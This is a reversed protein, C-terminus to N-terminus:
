EATKVLALIDDKTKADGLEINKATAYAKLQDVKWKETPDGEPFDPEDNEITYGQREFYELAPISDTEGVGDKFDVGVVVGTFGEVPTTVKAM